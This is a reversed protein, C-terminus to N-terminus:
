YCKTLDQQLRELDDEKINQGRKKMTHQLTALEPAKTKMPVLLTVTNPRKSTTGLRRKKKGGREHIHASKYRAAADPQQKKLPALLVTNPRISSTGPRAEKKRREKM